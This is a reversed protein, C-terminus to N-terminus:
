VLSFSGCYIGPLPIRILPTPLHLINPRGPGLALNKEKSGKAFLNVRQFNARRFTVLLFFFFFFFSYVCLVVVCMLKTYYRSIEGKIQSKNKEGKIQSKSKENCPGAM